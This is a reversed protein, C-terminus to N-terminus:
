LALLTSKTAEQVEMWSYAVSRAVNTTLPTGRVVGFPDHAHERDRLLRSIVDAGAKVGVSAYSSM